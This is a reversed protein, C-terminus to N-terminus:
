YESDYRMNMAEDYDDEYNGDVVDGYDGNTYIASPVVPNDDEGAVVPLMPNQERRLELAAEKEITDAMRARDEMDFVESTRMLGLAMMDVMINREVDSKLGLRTAFEFREKSRQQLLKDAIFKDTPLYLESEWKQLADYANWTLEKGFTDQVIALGRELCARTAVAQLDTSLRRDIGEAADLCERLDRSWRTRTEDLPVQAILAERERVAVRLKDLESTMRVAGEMYEHVAKGIFTRCLMRLVGVMVRIEYTLRTTTDLDTRGSLYPGLQMKPRGFDRVAAELKADTRAAVLAKLVPTEIEHEVSVEKEIAIARTGRQKLSAAEEKALPYLTLPLAIRASANRWADRLKEVRRAIDWYDADIRGEMSENAGRGDMIDAKKLIRGYLWAGYQEASETSISNIPQITTSFIESPPTTLFKVDDPMTGLLVRIFQLTYDRVRSPSESALKMTNVVADKQPLWPSQRYVFAMADIIYSLLPSSFETDGKSRPYGELTFASRPFQRSPRLAPEHTKLLLVFFALGFLTRILAELGAGIRNRNALVYADTQTFCTKVFDQLKMFDPDVGLLLLLSYLMRGDARIETQLLAKLALEKENAKPALVPGNDLVSRHVQKFGDENYDFETDMVDTAIVEGCFKCVRSGGDIIAFQDYYAELDKVQLGALTHSCLLFSPAGGAMDQYYYLHPSTEDGLASADKWVGLKDLLEILRTVKESDSIDNDDLVERIAVQQPTLSAVMAEAQILPVVVRQADRSRKLASLLTEIQKQQTNLIALWEKTSVRGNSRRLEQLRHVIEVPVCKRTETQFVGTSRFETWSRVKLCEAPTTKPLDAPVQPAPLLSASPGAPLLPISQLAKMNRVWQGGDAHSLLWGMISQGPEYADYVAPFLRADPVPRERLEFRAVDEPKFPIGPESVFLKQYAAWPLDKFIIGYYALYKRLTPIDSSVPAHELVDQLSPRLNELDRWERLLVPKSNFWMTTSPPDIIADVDELSAIDRPDVGEHGPPLIVFGRLQRKEAPYVTQPATFVDGNGQVIGHWYTYAPLLRTKKVVQSVAGTKRDILVGDYIAPGGTYSLHDMKSASDLVRQREFLDILQQQYLLARQQSGKPPPKSSLVKFDGHADDQPKVDHMIEVGEVYPVIWSPNPNRELPQAHSAKAVPIGVPSYATCEYYLQKALERKQIAQRLKSPPPDEGVPLMSQILDDLQSELTFFRNRRQVEEEFAIDELVEFDADTFPVRREM